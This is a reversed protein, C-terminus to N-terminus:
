GLVSRKIDLGATWLLNPRFKQTTASPECYRNSSRHRAKEGCRSRKQGATSRRNIKRDCKLGSGPQRVLTMTGSGVETVVAECAGASSVRLYRSLAEVLNNRM